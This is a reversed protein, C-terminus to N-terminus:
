GATVGTLDELRHLFADVDRVGLTAGPHKIIGTPDIGKVPRHFTLCAALDGNPTFSVGRDSFSLHPPGATKLFAFDQTRVAGAINDLEAVLRWPGYQVRLGRQDLRVGSTAPTIGFPAGAALYAPTFRFPFTADPM